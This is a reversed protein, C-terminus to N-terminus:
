ILELMGAFEEIIENGENQEKPKPPKPWEDEHDEEEDEPYAYKLWVEYLARYDGKMLQERIKALMILLSDDTKFDPEAELDDQDDEDYYAKWPEHDNPGFYELRCHITVVAKEQYISIDVGMDEVGDFAYAMLEEQQQPYLPFAIVLQWWGYSESYMVDYYNIMLPEWGGPIDYGDAHYIFSVSRPTPHARSSLSAVAARAKKDLTRDIALFEYSTSSHDSAFGKRISIIRM